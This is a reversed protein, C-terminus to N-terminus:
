GTSPQSDVVRDVVALLQSVDIPKTLYAQAGADLLTAIQEKSADASVVVVPIDKTAEGQRLLSLVESGSIDPLNLDLLILDPHHQKALDLGVSGQMAQLLRIGARRELVHEVLYANALNDEVYLVTGAAEQIKRWQRGAATSEKEIDDPLRTTSPLEFWFSSGRGPTSRAELTGGMAEVLRKSLTLGLGAGEVKLEEIGLRDFPEFAREINQPAIGRGTDTVTIRVNRADSQECTLTVSGKPRNYKIANSVLNFLVQVVRQRDANVWLDCGRVGEEEVKVDWEAALLRTLSLVERFVEEVRVPELRFDVKEAEVGSIGLVENVLELLHHGARLVHEVSERQEQSPEDMELLQAFGLIANLPTRLEHSMRSLFEGKAANAREAAERAALLEKEARVRETIDRAITSVGVIDGVENHIPSATLSVLVQTGDKRVQATESNDIREGRRIKELIAPVEDPEDPPVLVSSPGGIIEQARYGYLREAAPNWSMVTGELSRSYIADASSDVIAAMHARLDEAEKHSTVDRLVSLGGIIEGGDAYLPSYTIQFWGRVGTQAVDLDREVLTVYEGSLAQEFLVQEGTERLYPFKEFAVEDLVESAPVGTIREMAPNWLTYRFDRDFAFMGDPSSRLLSAGFERQRELAGRTRVVRGLLHMMVGQPSM